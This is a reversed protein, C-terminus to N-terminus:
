WNCKHHTISIDMQQLHWSNIGWPCCSTSHSGSHDLVTTWTQVKNSVYSTVFDPKGIAARHPSKSGQTPSLPQLVRLINRKLSWGLNLLTQLTALNPALKTLHNWWKHPRTITGVASADDAYWIQKVDEYSQLNKILPVPAVAYMPM